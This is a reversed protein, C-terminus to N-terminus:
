ILITDEVFLPVYALSQVTRRVNLHGYDERALDGAVYLVPERNEALAGLTGAGYEVISEQMALEGLLSEPKWAPEDQDHIAYVVVAAEPILGSVFEAISRARPGVERQALLTAAFEALPVSFGPSQTAM